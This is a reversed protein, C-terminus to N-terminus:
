GHHVPEGKEMSKPMCLEGPIEFLDLLTPQIVTGHYIAEDPVSCGDEVLAFRRPVTPSSPDYKIHIVPTLTARKQKNALVVPSEQVLIFFSLIEVDEALEVVREQGPALPLALSKTTKM